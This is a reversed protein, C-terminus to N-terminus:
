AELLLHRLEPDLPAATVLRRFRATGVALRGARLRQLFAGAQEPPLLPWARGAEELADGERGLDWLLLGRAARCRGELGALGCRAAHTAADAYGAEAASVQGDLQEVQAARFLAECAAPLDGAERAAAVAEAYWRRAGAADADAQHMAAVEALLAARGSVDGELALHTLLRSYRAMAGSPNGQEKRVRAEELLHAAEYPTLRGEPAPPSPPPTDRRM